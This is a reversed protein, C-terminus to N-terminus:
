DRPRVMWRRAAAAHRSEPFKLLHKRMSDMTPELRLAEWSAEIEAARTPGDLLMIHIHGNPDPYQLRDPHNLKVADAANALEVGILAETRGLEENLAETYVSPKIEDSDITEQAAATDGAWTAFGIIREPSDPVPEYYASAATMDSPIPEDALQDTPDGAFSAPEDTSLEVRCADILLILYAERALKEEIFNRDLSEPEMGSGAATDAYIGALYDTGNARFGHGSFYILVVPRLDQNRAFRVERTRLAEIAAKIQAASKNQEVFVKFQLRELKNRILEADKAASRLPSSPYTENAFVLAYRPVAAEFQLTPDQERPLAPTAGFALALAVFIGWAQTRM